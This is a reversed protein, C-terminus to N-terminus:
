LIFDYTTLMNIETELQSNKHCVDVCGQPLTQFFKFFFNQVKPPFVSGLFFFSFRAEVVVELVFEVRMRILGNPRVTKQIREKRRCGFVIKLLNNDM